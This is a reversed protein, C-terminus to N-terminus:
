CMILISRLIKDIQIKLEASNIPYLLHETTTPKYAMQLPIYLNIKPYMKGYNTGYFNQMFNFM